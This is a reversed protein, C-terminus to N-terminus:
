FHWIENMIGLGKKNIRYILRKIRKIIKTLNLDSLEAEFLIFNKSKTSNLIFRNTRELREIALKKRNPRVYYVNKVYVLHAALNDKIYDSIFMDIFRIDKATNRQNNRKTTRIFLFKYYVALLGQSDLKYVYFSYYGKILKRHLAYHRKAKPKTKKFM